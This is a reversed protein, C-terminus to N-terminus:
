NQHPNSRNDTPFFFETSAAARLFCARMPQSPQAAHPTQAVSSQMSSDVDLVQQVHQTHPFLSSSLLSIFLLFLPFFSLFIFNFFHGLRFNRLILLLFYLTPRFILEKYFSSILRIIILYFITRQYLLFKWIQPYVATKTERRNWEETGCALSPTWPPWSGTPAPCLRSLRPACLTPM